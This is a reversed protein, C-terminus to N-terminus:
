QKAGITRVVEARDSAFPITNLVIFRNYPDGV